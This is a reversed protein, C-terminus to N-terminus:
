MNRAYNVEKIKNTLWKWQKQKKIFFINTASVNLVEKGNLSLKGLNIM